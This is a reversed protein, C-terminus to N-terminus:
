RKAEAIQKRRRYEIYIWVGAIVIMAVWPGASQVFGMFREAYGAHQIVTEVDNTQTVATVAATAAAGARVANVSGSQNVSQHEEIVSAPEVVPRVPEPEVSFGSAFHSAEDARRRILGPLPTLVGNVRANRWRAFEAQAGIYDRANLKRLLTSNALNGEGLNFTFSVLADFQSQTLPATVLRTVAREATRLDRRLRQEAEDETIELGPSVDFTSGYGITWVGAPCLYARLRLGEHRKIMTIGRRSTQM